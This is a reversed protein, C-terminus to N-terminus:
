ITSCFFLFIVNIFVFCYAYHTDTDNRLKGQSSLRIDGGGGGDRSLLPADVGMDAALQSSAGVTTFLAESIPSAPSM